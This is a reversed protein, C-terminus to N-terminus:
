EASAGTKKSVYRVLLLLAGLVTGVTLIGYIAVWLPTGPLEILFFLRPEVQGPSITAIVYGFLGTLTLIIVYM